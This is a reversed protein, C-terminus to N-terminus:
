RSEPDRDMELGRRAKEAAELRARARERRARLRATETGSLKGREGAEICLGLQLMVARLSAIRDELYLRSAHGPCLIFGLIRVEGPM